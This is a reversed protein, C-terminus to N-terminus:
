NEKRMATIPDLKAAKKAPYLGFLLGVGASFGVALIISSIPVVYIWSLNYSLAVYYIILSFIAGLIIGVISGAVTMAVAELLFQYMIDKSKAGLSKRLGIEFTRETVSVYMINMIGVGGVVLSICVLAILLFLVSGVVTDLIELAEDITAVAFDYKDPDGYEIDHNESLRLNIEEKTDEALSPDIMKAAIALYHDVGLLRKQLTKAPLYVMSDMDLFGSSGREKAVGIVRFSKGKIKVKKGVADEVGFLDDKIQSGLVVVTALSEEDDRAYMRGQSIEFKEVDVVQYGQGLLIVTKNLGNYSVVEQGTIYGYAASINKISLIDERDKDDMTTITIGTAQGSANESSTHATDPIKVETWITNPNYSDFQKKLTYDLGEGASMIAIVVAIGISVGLVTLLFRAKKATISVYAQRWINSLKM